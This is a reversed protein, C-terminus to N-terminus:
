SAIKRNSLPNPSSREFGVGLELYVASLASFGLMLSLLIPGAGALFLALNLLALRTYELGKSARGELCRGHCFFAFACIAVLTSSILYDVDLVAILLALGLALTLLFQILVYYALAPAIKPDYKEGLAGRRELKCASKQLSSGDEGHPRWGPPKFLLLTARSLSGSRGMDVLLRWYVHVNAWLPNWSQLPKRLGFYVAQDALERQYSGFIRDWLIFVGGYNRDVYEDNRGHHVRHNSPTVFVWELPGLEPVHETHVWFQYILNLSAVTLVMELSFGAVFLPLYFFVSHFDISTQRLATGLNFDESQHHAVHSGWLIATEHSLRHKWYYLLDYLVFCGIWTLASDVPLQPVPLELTVWEYVSGTVSIIVLMWLRSFTGLSLSNITDNLRYTNRGRWLGYGFELLMLLIFVPIAYLILDM